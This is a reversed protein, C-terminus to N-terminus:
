RLRRVHIDTDVDVEAAAKSGATHAAPMGRARARPSTVCRPSWSAAGNAAARCRSAAKAASARDVPADALGDEGLLLDGATVVAVVALQARVDEAVGVALFLQEGKL